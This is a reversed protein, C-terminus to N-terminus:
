GAAGTNLKVLSTQQVPSSFRYAHRCQLKGEDPGLVANGDYEAQRSENEEHPLRAHRSELLYELGSVVNLAAGDAARHDIAVYQHKESALFGLVFTADAVNGVASGAKSQIAQVDHGRLEANREVIEVRHTTASQDPAVAIKDPHREFTLNEEL